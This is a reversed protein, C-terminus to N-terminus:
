VVVLTCWQGFAPADVPWQDAREVHRVGQALLQAARIVGAHTIWVHDAPPLDDIAHGVRGM